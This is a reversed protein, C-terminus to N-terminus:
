LLKLLIGTLLALIGGGIGGLVRLALRQTAQVGALQSALGPRGNGFIEREIRNVRPPLTACTQAVEDLKDDISDLREDLTM